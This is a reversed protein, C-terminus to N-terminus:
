PAVDSPLLPRVRELFADARDCASRADAETFTAQANYDASIRLSGLERIADSWETEVLRTRVIYNGFYSKVGTHTDVTIGQLELLSKAAHMVAYYARSIADAYLGNSQCLRAATLSQRGRRWEAM